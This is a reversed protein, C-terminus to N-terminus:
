DDPAASDVALLEVRYLWVKVTRAVLEGWTEYYWSGRVTFGNDAIWGPLADFKSAYADCYQLWIVGGPRLFPAVQKFFREVTGCDYLAYDFPKTVEGESWPAAFMITDYRGEVREFLDSHIARVRPLTARVHAIADENIDIATVSRAGAELAVRALIGSGTGVDLVTPGFEVHDVFQQIRRRAPILFKKEM